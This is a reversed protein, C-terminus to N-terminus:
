SPKPYKSKMRNHEPRDPYREVQPKWLGIAQLNFAIAGRGLFVLTEEDLGEDPAYQGDCVHVLRAFFDEIDLYKGTMRDRDVDVEFVSHTPVHRVHHKDCLQWESPEYEIGDADPDPYIRRGDIDM